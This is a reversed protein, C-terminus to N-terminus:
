YYKLINCQPKITDCMNLAVPNIFIICLTAFINNNAM